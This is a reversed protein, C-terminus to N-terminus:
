IPGQAVDLNSTYQVCTPPTLHANSFPEFFGTDIVTKSLILESVGYRSACARHLKPLTSSNDRSELVLARKFFRQANIGRREKEGLLTAIARLSNGLFPPKMWVAKEKKVNL